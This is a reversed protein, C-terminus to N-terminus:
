LDRPIVRVAKRRSGGELMGELQDIEEELKRIEERLTKLDFKTLSRSGISYSQVQGSLLAIYAEELKEMACVRVDLRHKIRDIKERKM